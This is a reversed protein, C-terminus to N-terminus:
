GRFFAAHMRDVIVAMDVFDFAADQPAPGASLNPTAWANLEPHWRSARRHAARRLADVDAVAAAGPAPLFEPM